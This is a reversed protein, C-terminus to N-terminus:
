VIDEEDVKSSRWGRRMKWGSEKGEKTFEGFRIIKNRVGKKKDTFDIENEEWM